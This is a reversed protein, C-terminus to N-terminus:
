EVETVSSYFIRNTTYANAILHCMKCKTRIWPLYLDKCLFTHLTKKSAHFKRNEILCFKKTFIFLM